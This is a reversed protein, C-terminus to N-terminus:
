ILIVTSVFLVSANGIILSTPTYLVLSANSNAPLAGSPISTISISSVFILSPAPKAKLPVHFLSLPM